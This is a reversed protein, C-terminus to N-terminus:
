AQQADEKEKQLKRALEFEEMTIEHVVLGSGDLTTFPQRGTWEVPEGHPAMATEDIFSNLPKM